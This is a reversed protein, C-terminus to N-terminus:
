VLLSVNSFDKINFLYVIYELSGRGYMVLCLTLRMLMAQFRVELDAGALIAGRLNCNKLNAGKLTAVRLNVNTMQSGELESAKLNAGEM